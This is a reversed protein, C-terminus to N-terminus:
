NDQNESSDTKSIKINIEDHNENLLKLLDKPGEASIKEDSGPEDSAYLAQAILIGDWWEQHDHVYSEIIVEDDDGAVMYEAHTMVAIKEEPLPAPYGCGGCYNRMNGTRGCNPCDWVDHEAGATGFCSCFIMSVCCLLIGIM